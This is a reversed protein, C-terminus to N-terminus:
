GLTDLVVCRDGLAEKIAVALRAALATSNGGIHWRVAGRTVKGDWKYDYVTVVKLAGAEIGHFAWSLNVKEGGDGDSHAFGIVSELDSLTAKVYFGRFGTGAAASSPAVVFSDKFSM